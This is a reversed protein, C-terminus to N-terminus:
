ACTMFAQHHDLMRVTQEAISMCLGAPEDVGQLM